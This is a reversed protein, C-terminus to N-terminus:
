LETGDILQQERSDEYIAWALLGVVAVLLGVGLYLAWSDGWAPEVDDADYGHQNWQRLEKLRQQYKEPRHGRPRACTMCSEMSETNRSQSCLQCTWRSEVTPTRRHLTRADERDVM